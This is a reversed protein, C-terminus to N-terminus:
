REERKACSERKKEDGKRGRGLSDEPHLIAEKLPGIQEQTLREGSVDGVNERCAIAEKKTPSCPIEKFGRGRLSSKKRKALKKKKRAPRRARSRLAFLNKELETQIAQTKRRLPHRRRFRGRNDMGIEKFLIYRGSKRPKRGRRCGREGGKGIKSHGQL